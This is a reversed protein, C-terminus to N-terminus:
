IIENPKINSNEPLLAVAHLHFLHFIIRQKLRCFFLDFEPFVPFPIIRCKDRQRRNDYETSGIHQDHGRNCQFRISRQGTSTFHMLVVVAAKVFISIYHTAVGVIHYMGMIWLIAIILVAIQYALEALQFGVPM